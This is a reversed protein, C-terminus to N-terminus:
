PAAWESCICRSTVWTGAWHLQHAVWGHATLSYLGLHPHASHTLSTLQTFRLHTHSLPHTPSCSSRLHSHTLSLSLPGTTYLSHLHATLTPSHGLSDQILSQALHSHTSILSHTHTLTLSHILLHSYTLTLSLSQLSNTFASHILSLSTLVEHTRRSLLEKQVSLLKDSLLVVIM